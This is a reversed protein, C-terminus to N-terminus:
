SNVASTSARGCIMGASMSTMGVTMSATHSASGVRIGTSSAAATVNNMAMASATGLIMSESSDLTLSSMPFPMSWTDVNKSEM